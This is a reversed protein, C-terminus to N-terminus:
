GCVCKNKEEKCIGCMEEEKKKTENKKKEENIMLFIQFLFVPVASSIVSMGMTCLIDTVIVVATTVIMLIIIKAEM